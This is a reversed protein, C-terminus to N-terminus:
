PRRCGAPILGSGSRGKARLRFEQSADDFLYITGADTGSLQVSRDTM